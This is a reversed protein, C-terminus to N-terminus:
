LDNKKIINNSVKVPKKDQQLKIGNKYVNLEKNLTIKINM